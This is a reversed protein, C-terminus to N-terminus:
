IKKSLLEFFQELSKESRQLMTESLNSLFGLYSSSWFQEGDACLPVDMRETGNIEVLFPSSFRKISSNKLGAEYGLKVLLDAANISSCCVHFIPAQMQLFVMNTSDYQELIHQIEDVKVPPKHYKLLFCAHKKDGLEPLSLLVVRGSCSSTTYYQETANLLDLIKEAGFDVKGQSRAKSLLQLARKKKDNFIQTSEMNMMEIYPATNSIRENMIAKTNM